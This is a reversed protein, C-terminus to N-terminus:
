EEPTEIHLVGTDGIRRIKLNREIKDADKTEVVLLTVDWQWTNENARERKASKIKILDHSVVQRGTSSSTEIRIVNNDPNFTVRRQNGDNDTMTTGATVNLLSAVFNSQFTKCLGCNPLPPKFDNVYRPSYTMYTAVKREDFMRSLSNYESTDACNCDYTFVEKKNYLKEFFVSTLKFYSFLNCDLFIFDLDKLFNTDPQPRFRFDSIMNYSLDLSRLKKHIYPIQTLQNRALSLAILNEFNELYSLETEDNLQCDEIALWNLKPYATNLQQLLSDCKDQFNKVRVFRLERLDKMLDGKLSWKSISGFDADVFSLSIIEDHFKKCLKNDAGLKELQDNIGQLHLNPCRVFVIEFLRKFQGLEPPLQEWNANCITIRKVKHHYNRWTCSKFKQPNKCKTDGVLRSQLFMRLTDIIRQDGETSNDGKVIIQEVASKNMCCMERAIEHYHFSPAGNHQGAMPTCLFLSFPLFFFLNKM